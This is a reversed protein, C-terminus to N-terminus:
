KEGKKNKKYRLIYMIIDFIIVAVLLIDAFISFGTIPCGIIFLQYARIILIIVFVIDIFINIIKM